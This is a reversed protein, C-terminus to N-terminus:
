LHFQLDYVWASWVIRNAECATIDRNRLTAIKERPCAVRTPLYLPVFHVTIPDQCLSTKGGIRELEAAGTGNIFALDETLESPCRELTAWLLYTAAM